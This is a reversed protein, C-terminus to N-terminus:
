MEIYKLLMELNKNERGKTESITDIVEYGFRTLTAVIRKLDIQNIKLTIKVRFPDEDDLQLYGSLVRGKEEEILRTIESLSYEKYSAKITIIGGPINVALANSTAKLLNKKTVIGCYNGNEDVIPLSQLSLNAFAKMLEHLHTNPLAKANSNIKLKSSKILSSISENKSDFLDISNLSGIFKQQNNIVPLNIEGTQKSIEIVEKVTSTELVPTINNDMIEIAIM